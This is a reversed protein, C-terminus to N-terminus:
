TPTDLPGDWSLTEENWVFNSGNIGSDVQEQTLVPPDVPAKWTCTDEVLVWSEFPKPPIFADKEEDYIAGTCAYNMRFPTKGTLHEGRFTNYSTRKCKLGTNEEYVAEWDHEECEDCGYIVNVVINNEDLLAYHAM